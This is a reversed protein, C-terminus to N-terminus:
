FKGLMTSECNIESNFQKLFEVAVSHLALSHLWADEFMDQHCNNVFYNSKQTAEHLKSTLILVGNSLEFQSLMTSHEISQQGPTIQSFTKSRLLTWGLSSSFSYIM